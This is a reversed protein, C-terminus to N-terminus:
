PEEVYDKYDTARVKVRNYYRTTLPWAPNQSGLNMLLQRFMKIGNEFSVQFVGPRSVIM